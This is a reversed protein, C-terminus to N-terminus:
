ITYFKLEMLIRFMDIIFFILYKFTPILLFYLFQFCRCYHVKMQSPDSVALLRKIFTNMALVVDEGASSTLEQTM